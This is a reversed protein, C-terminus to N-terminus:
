WPALLHFRYPITRLGSQTKTRLEDFRGQYGFITRNEAEVASAYIEVREIAQESLNAFEPTYYDFRSRRSIHRDIGQQYMAVPLISFIGIIWGHETAKYKGAPSGGATLGKGALKGSAVWSRYIIDSRGGVSHRPIQRRRYIGTATLSRRWQKRRLSSQSVRYISGRGQRQTGDM